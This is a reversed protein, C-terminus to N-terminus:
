AAPTAAPPQPQRKLKKRDYEAITAALRSEWTLEWLEFDTYRKGLEDATTIPSGDAAATNRCGRFWMNIADMTARMRDERAGRNAAEALRGIQQDEASTLFRTIFVPRSGEPLAADETLSFETTANPDLAIAM